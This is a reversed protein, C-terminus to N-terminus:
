STTGSEAEAALMQAVRAILVAAQAAAFAHTATVSSSHTVSQALTNAARMFQRMEVSAAGLLRADFFMDLM